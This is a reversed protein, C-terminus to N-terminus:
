ILDLELSETGSATLLIQKKSKDVVLLIERM